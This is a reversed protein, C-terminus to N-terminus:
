QDILIVRTQFAFCAQRRRRRRAKQKDQPCGNFPFDNRKNLFRRKKEEDKSTPRRWVFWFECRFIPSFNECVSVYLFSSLARGKNQQIWVVVALHIFSFDLNASVEPMYQRGESPAVLKGPENIPSHHHHHNHNCNHSSDCWQAPQAPWVSLWGSLCVHQHVGSSLTARRKIQMLGDPSTIKPRRGLQGLLLNGGRYGAGGRM